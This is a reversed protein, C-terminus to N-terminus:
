KTALELLKVTTSWTRITMQKYFPSSMIRNLRSKTREASLRQSYIVRNGPWIIDVGEKPKFVGLAAQENLDMLFIVDSHFRTPEDGFGVPKQGVVAALYEVSIVHALGSGEVVDFNSAVLREVEVKVTAADLGSSLLVNGSNIYTSVNTYGSAELLERLEVMQVRSKGGVNVGRLLVIYDTM